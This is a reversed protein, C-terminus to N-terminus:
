RKNLYEGLTNVKELRKAVGDVMHKENVLSNPFLTKVKSRYFLNKGNVLARMLKLLLLRNQTKLVDKDIYSNEENYFSFCDPDILVINDRNIVVNSPKVDGLVLKAENFIDFLKDLGEFNTLIYDIPMDLINVKDKPIFDYTYASLHCFKLYERIDDVGQNIVMDVDYLADHLKLLNVSLISKLLEFVEYELNFIDGLPVRYEKLVLDGIKFIYSTSGTKYYNGDLTYTRLNGEHDYFRM